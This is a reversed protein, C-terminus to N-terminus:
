DGAARELAVKLLGAFLRPDADGGNGLIEEGEVIPISALRCGAELAQSEEPEVRVIAACSPLVLAWLPAYAEVLPIGVLEVEVNDSLKLGGLTHPVPAAPVDTAVTVDVIRGLVSMMAALRRPSAAIGLRAPGEFGSRPLRRALASLVNLGEEDALEVRMSSTEFRQVSRRDLLGKLSSLIDLDLAPIEDLLETLTHPTALVDLVRQEIEPAGPSEPLVSLLADDGLSLADKLSRMEDIQRMGEMLLSHSPREIRRLTQQGGTTFAFQGDGEGLLRFVAKEGDVRRYVADVVEGETLRLEGSGSPTTVSLTGSRRNMSLLQLLDAISVQQLDGRFDGTEAAAPVSHTPLAYVRRVIGDVDTRAFEHLSGPETRDVLVFLPQASLRRVARIRSEFGETRFLADSVLIVGVLVQHAREAASEVSDAISVELARARLKSALSGLEDVDPDILLVTRSM